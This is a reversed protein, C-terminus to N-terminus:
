KGTTSGATSTGDFLVHTGAAINLTAGAPVTADGTVHIVGSWTTVVVAGPGHVGGSWTAVGVALTGSVNTMAPSGLSSLAKETSLGSGTATLTFNGPDTAGCAVVVVTL